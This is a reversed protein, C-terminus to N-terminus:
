SLSVSSVAVLEPLFGTGDFSRPSIVFIYIFNM